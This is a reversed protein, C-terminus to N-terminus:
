GNYNNMRSQVETSPTIDIRLDALEYYIFVVHGDPCAMSPLETMVQNFVDLRTAAYELRNDIDYVFAAFRRTGIHSAIEDIKSATLRCLLDGERFPLITNHLMELAICGEGKDRLKATELTASFDLWTTVTKFQPFAVVVVDSPELM